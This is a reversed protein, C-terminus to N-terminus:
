AEEEGVIEIMLRATQMGDAFASIVARGTEGTLAARVAAQGQYLHVAPEQYPESSMLCGNDTGLIRVPGEAAFHVFSQERFYPNGEEDAAQVSM